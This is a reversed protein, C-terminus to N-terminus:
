KDNKLHLIYRVEILEKGGIVIPKESGSEAFGFKEYFARARTNERLVWLFVSKFGSSELEDLVARFLRGGYGKGIYEPLLYISVIEGWGPLDADRGAGFSSTGIYEDGDLMVLASFRSNKLRPVWADESLADLYHRPVIDRYAFKWSLAYIRSVEELDGDDMRRIQMLTRRDGYKMNMIVDTILLNL